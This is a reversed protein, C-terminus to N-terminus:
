GKKATKTKSGGRTRRRVAPELKPKDEFGASALAYMGRSPRVIRDDRTLVSILNAQQGAGPIPVSREGLLRMLESIHLPKGAQSLEDVVEDVVAHTRPSRRDSPAARSALTGPRQPRPEGHRLALLEELLQVERLVADRELALDTLQTELAEYRSKAKDLAQSVLEDSLDANM